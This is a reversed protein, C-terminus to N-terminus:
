LIHPQVCSGSINQFKGYDSMNTKNAAERIEGTEEGDNLSSKHLTKVIM